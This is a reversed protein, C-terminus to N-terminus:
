QATTEGQWTNIGGFELINTYGMDVLKSVITDMPIEEGKTVTFIRETFKEFPTLKEMLAGVTTIVTLPAGKVGSLVDSIEKICYLRDRSIQNGHIDASYFIMDKAPYVCTRAGFFRCDGEISATKKEDDTVILNLKFNRGLIAQIHSKQSDTCGHVEVTGVTKQLIEEAQGLGLLEDTIDLYEKM